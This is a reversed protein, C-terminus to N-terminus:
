RFNIYYASPVVLLCTQFWRLGVRSNPERNERLPIMIHRSRYCSFLGTPILQGLKINYRLLVCFDGDSGLGSIVVYACLLACDGTIIRSHLWIAVLLRLRSLILTCTSPTSSAYLPPYFIQRLKPLSYIKLGTSAIDM